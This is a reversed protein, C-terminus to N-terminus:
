NKNGGRILLTGGDPPSLLSHLLKARYSFLDALFRLILEQDEFWEVGIVHNIVLASTPPSSYIKPFWTNRVTQLAPCQFVFHALDESSDTSCLLCSSSRPSQGRPTNFVATHSALSTAHLILRIRLNSLRSLSLNHKVKDIIPAPHGYMYRIAPPLNVIHSLSPMTTSEISDRFEEFVLTKTLAKWAKKSPLDSVLELVSPLSFSDLHASFSNILSQSPPPYQNARYILIDRSVAYDPLALVNRVFNLQRHAILYSIPITGCLYHVGLSPVHSPVGLITRLIKLQSREMMLIETKTPAWVEFGFSLISLSIAKFLQLSTATNVGTHRAGLASLAYYASRSSTISRTTRNVTSSSTSLLLGLHRASSLTPISSNSISWEYSPLKKRSFILVASKSPNIKYGWKNAYKDVVSLMGQLDEQSSAILAMDDAFTPSGAYVTGIRVGLDSAELLFLLESTFVAYLLPSLVAGQRVGQRVLFPRSVRDYWLVSSTSSSYWNFLTHWLDGRVGLHFLKYFLGSHWVTDFAKQVDVLALFPIDRNLKCEAIAEHLIFSTHATSYGPRFGGQLPHILHLLKDQLPVLLLKEFLKSIISSLSIGRYNAPSVPDKGGGKFIPIVTSCTFSSPVVHYKLIGNFLSALAQFVSAPANILHEVSVQDPGSAKCRPLSLVVANVDEATIVVCAESNAPSIAISSIENDIFAKHCPDFYTSIPTYLDEFYSAWAGPIADEQYLQGRFM